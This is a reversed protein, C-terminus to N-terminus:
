EQWIRAPIPFTSALTVADVRAPLLDDGPKFGLSAFPGAQFWCTSAVRKPEGDISFAIYPSHQPKTNGTCGQQLKCQRRKFDMHPSLSTESCGEPVPTSAAKRASPVTM